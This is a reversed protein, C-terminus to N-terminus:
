WTIQYHVEVGLHDSLENEGDFVKEFHIPRVEIGPQAGSISFVHDISDLWQEETEQDGSCNRKRYCVERANKMLFSYGSFVLYDLREPRFNFDGAFIMLGQHDRKADLFEKTLGIQKIRVTKAKGGDGFSTANLHTNFFDVPRPLDPHAIRIHQVGKRSLCDFGTCDPFVTSSSKQFPFESMVLLGSSLRFGKEGPGKQVHPYGAFRYLEKTKEHFAEQIAVIHPAGGMMRRAALVEGIERYRWHDKGVPSPLGKVNYTLVRLVIQGHGAANSNVESPDGDSDWIPRKKGLAYASNGQLFGICLSVLVVKWSGHLKM